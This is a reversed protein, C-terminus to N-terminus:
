FNIVDIGDGDNNLNCQEITANKPMLTPPLIQFNNPTWQEEMDLAQCELIIRKSRIKVLAASISLGTEITLLRKHIMNWMKSAMYLFTKSHKPLIITLSSDRDSIKIEDFLSYPCRFKIIKFIENICRYKFLNQVTLFKHKNFLPKTHEKSYFTSGLKQSGFPRVRACTSHKDLYAELNGFLIRICHKQTIFLKDDDQDKLAVGWVSIGYGLHSEFLASYITKYLEAPISHRLRCIAGTISRLKKRLYEIHPGWSIKDDIVVGLFKTSEVKLIKKGNIFIARSKDNEDAYPRVRACTDYSENAKPKFHMFCCKLMNIHLLNSRMFNSVHDLVMNAKLYTSEKSAGTIFINTDDAYLVFRCDTGDYCNIIDNIYLIFLLPGLISGQPVGYQIALTDSNSDLFSVYQSRNSLYSQLLSLAIGRVGYNELKNLLIGHDLTDFAKSLDIFIGLVHKGSAMSESIANVSKHLAHTTSHGKRFGFQEDHLIGKATFFKYLRNYIIKEFIKGFIPLISIPRYNEICEKNDKKYIPVVKGIKFSSPFVGTHICNNYLMALICSILHAPRKLVAIPIDSAKGNELNKIIDFVEDPNTEEFNISSDLSHSMYQTFSVLPEVSLSNNHMINENLNSALSTFYQNFKNAITRRCLVRTGDIVFDNKTKEKSKGRLENIVQWTKKSNKAHKEFKNVYYKSKALKITSNLYKKFEKYELYKAQNGDPNEITCTEKWEFYLRAKKDISNILGQTIWPNTVCNRRTTKPTLLKCTQDIKEQFISLFAEFTDCYHYFTDIDKEIEDCLKDLNSKSYEYNITIKDPAPSDGTDAPPLKKLLFIPHHHSIRNSIVGTVTTPDTDNTHINDICTKACHPMEHTPISVTPTFGSTFVAEEFAEESCSSINLININFDGLIYAKKDNLESLIQQYQVNFQDLSANPPRYVVGVIIPEPLNTLTVFMSEINENCVSIKNISTFNFSNHVYLCVGSGKAKVQNKTTCYFRSQYVPTYDALQYLHRNEPDTNTEALGLVSFKHKISSLEVVFNDFNTHNGDINLFYTSFTDNENSSFLASNLQSISFTQCSELISSITGISEVYEIPEDDLLDNKAFHPAHYFPNYRIIDYYNICCSCFTEERFKIFNDDTYCKKHIICNCKKCFNFPHGARIPRNCSVCLECNANSRIMM